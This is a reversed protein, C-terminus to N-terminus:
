GSLQVRDPKPCPASVLTTGPDPGTLPAQKGNGRSGLRLLLQM